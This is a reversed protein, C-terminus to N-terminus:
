QLHAGVIEKLEQEFKDAGLMQRKFSAKMLNAFERSLETTFEQDVKALFLDFAENRLECINWSTIAHDIKRAKEKVEEVASDRLEEMKALVRESENRVPSSM